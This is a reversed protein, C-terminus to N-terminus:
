KLSKPSWRMNGQVRERAADVRATTTLSRHGYIPQRRGHIKWKGDSADPNPVRLYGVKELRKPIQRRNKPDELWSTLSASMAADKLDSLTIADAPTLVDPETELAKSLKDIADGLENEESGREAEVIEWFAATKTPPAKPNFGELDFAALLAAVHAYGNEKEYWQYLRDFYSPELDGEELPSWAVYHRRDDAPLYVGDTLYNSTIIVGTVNPVTHERINKEDCRLVDPPSATLPKLHEYFAYRNTEGLDRAENIRLIVSKTFGNFRGLLQVPSVEVFNWVGVARAVPALLTDKGIGPAGGLLLAHNIKEAPKKVRHALWRVIHPADDPYVTQVHKLWPGAATPDGQLLIPPRYLNFITSGTREIFGGEAILRDRILMPEGPYWSLQEVPRYQDLWASASLIIQEGKENFKPSGDSYELPIPPIRANVSSAPWLERTPIFIFRHQPMYAFFDERSVGPASELKSPPLKSQDRFEHKM